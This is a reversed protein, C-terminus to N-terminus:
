DVWFTPKINSGLLTCDGCEKPVLKYNGPLTITPDNALYYMYNRELADKLPSRTSYINTSVLTPAIFQCDSIYDVESDPYFDVYNLFYRKKSVSAVEFFGIVSENTDSKSYMNGIIKGPQNQTFIGQSESLKNLTNFYTYAELNQVYQSVLISYRNSIKFDNKELFNVKFNVNNESLFSTETQIIKSSNVTNYCIKNNDNNPVLYAVYDPDQIVELKYSSWYPAIIKYTEEYEYKYYKVNEDSTSSNIFISIGDKGKQNTDLKADIADIENFGVISQTKSTYLKGENTRIELTYNKNIEAEFKSNSVYTGNTTEIFNYSNNADDKINVIANSELIPTISDLEITRSLKVTQYKNENTITAEVMLFGKSESNKLPVEELCSMLQFSVCFLILIKKISKM